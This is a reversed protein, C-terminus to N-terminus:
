EDKEKLLALAIVFGSIFGHRYELFPDNGLLIELMIKPDAYFRLSTEEVFKWFDDPSIDVKQLTVEISETNVMSQMVEQLEEIGIM